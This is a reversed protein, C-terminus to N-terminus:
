GERNIEKNDIIARGRPNRIEYSKFKDDTIFGDGFLTDKQDKVLMVKSDTRVESSKRDWHLTDTYLVYGKRSTFVVNDYASFLQKLDNMMGRESILKGTRVSDEFFEITLGSDIYSETYKSNGISSRKLFGAKMKSRLKGSNTITVDMDWIMNDPIDTSPDITERTEVTKKDSSCSLFM